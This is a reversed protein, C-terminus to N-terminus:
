QCSDIQHCNNQYKDIEEPKIRKLLYYACGIACSTELYDDVNGVFDPGKPDSNFGKLRLIGSSIDGVLYPYKDYCEEIYKDIFAQEQWADRYNRELFYIGKENKIIMVISVVDDNEYYDYSVNSFENYSSIDKVFEVMEENLRSADKSDINIVPIKVYESEKNEYVIDKDKKVKSITKKSTSEVVKEEKIFPSKITGTLLLTLCTTLVLLLMILFIVLGNSKKEM